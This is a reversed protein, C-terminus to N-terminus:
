QFTQKDVCVLKSVNVGVWECRVGGVYTPGTILGIIGVAQIRWGLAYLQTGMLKSTYGNISGHAHKGHYVNRAVTM